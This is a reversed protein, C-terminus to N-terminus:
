CPFRRYLWGVFCFFAPVAAGMVCISLWALTQPVPDGYARAQAGRLWLLSVGYFGLAEGIGFTFIAV